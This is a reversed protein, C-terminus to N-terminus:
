DTEEVLPRGEIVLNKGRSIECVQGECVAEVYAAVSVNGLLSKLSLVLKAIVQAPVSAIMSELKPGVKHVFGHKTAYESEVGRRFIIENVRRLLDCGVLRKIWLAKKV